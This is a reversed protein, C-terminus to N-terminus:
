KKVEKKTEDVITYEAHKFGGQSCYLDVGVVDNPNVELDVDAEFGSPKQQRHYYVTAAEQGNVFVTMRRLYHRELRESVHPAEVHITGKLADYSIDISAPPIALALSPLVLFFLLMTKM